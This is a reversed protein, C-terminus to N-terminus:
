HIHFYKYLNAIHMSKSNSHFPISNANALMQQVNINSHFVYLYISICILNVTLLFCVLRQQTRTHSITCMELSRNAIFDNLEIKWLIRLLIRLMQFAICQKAYTYQCIISIDRLMRSNLQTEHHWLHCSDVVILLRLPLDYGPLKTKGVYNLFEHGLLVFM